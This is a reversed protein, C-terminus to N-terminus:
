YIGSFTFSILLLHDRPVGSPTCTFSSKHGLVMGM